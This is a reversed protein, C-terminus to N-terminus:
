DIIDVVGYELCAKRVPKDQEVLEHEVLEDDVLEM